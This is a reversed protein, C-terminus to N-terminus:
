TGPDPVCTLEQLLETEDQSQGVGTDRATSLQKFYRQTHVM